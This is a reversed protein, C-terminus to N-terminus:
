GSHAAASALLSDYEAHAAAPLERATRGPRYGPARACPSAPATRRAGTPVGTPQCTHDMGGGGALSFDAMFRPFPGLFHRRPNLYPFGGRHARGGNRCRRRDAATATAPNGPLKPAEQVRLSQEVARSPASAVDGDDLIVVM